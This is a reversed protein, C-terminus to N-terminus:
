GPSPRTTTSRATPQAPWGSSSGTLNQAGHLDGEYDVVIYNRKTTRSVSVLASGVPIHGIGLSGITPNPVYVFYTMTM